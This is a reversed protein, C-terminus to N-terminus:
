ADKMMERSRVRLSLGGGSRLVLGHADNIPCSTSKAAGEGEKIPTVNSQM